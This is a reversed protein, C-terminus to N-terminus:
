CDTMWAVYLAPDDVGNMRHLVGESAGGREGSHALLIAASACLLRARRVVAHVRDGDIRRSADCIVLLVLRGGSRLLMSAHAFDCAVDRLVIEFGAFRAESEIVRRAKAPFVAADCWRDEFSQPRADVPFSLGTDGMLRSRQGVTRGDDVFGGAHADAADGDRRIWDLRM